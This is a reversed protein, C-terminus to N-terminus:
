KTNSSCAKPISYVPEPKLNIDCIQLKFCSQGIDAACFQM